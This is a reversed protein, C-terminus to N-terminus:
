AIEGAKRLNQLRQKLLSPGNDHICYMKFFDPCEEDGGHYEKWARDLSIKGITGLHLNFENVTKKLEPFTQILAGHLIHGRMEKFIEPNIANRFVEAATRLSKRRDLTDNFRYVIWALVLAGCIGLLWLDAQSLFIGFLRM